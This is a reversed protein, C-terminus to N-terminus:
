IDLNKVQLAREQIFDRRPEVEDGMLTIFVQDAKLADDVTVQLLTRNEPNLTTQWLQDPNMEGLGKYRSISVGQQGEALVAQVLSAPDSVPYTKNKGQLEGGTGVLMNVDQAMRSLKLYAAHGLTTPTIRITEMLGERQRTLRLTLGQEQPEVTASWQEHAEATENLKSTLKSHLQQASAEDALNKLEANVQLMAYVAESPLENGTLSAVLDSATNATDFTAALDNGSREEGNALKLLCNDLANRRLYAQLSAEDKLYIESKGRAVRFLPPQAIYIHGADILEPMNRYFFTLLLTRIHAGDVDADTMIVIKHYRLKELNFEEHGIGTGLATVLTGIENNQLIRDFRVKEVNLIKGRLPLIAQTARDRGQKASGGASDGEVIFIESKAPDKTACDALKGPLNAVELPSKRRAM